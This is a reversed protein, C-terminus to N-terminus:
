QFQQRQQEQRYAAGDERCTVAVIIFIYICALQRRLGLAKHTFVEGALGYNGYLLVVAFVLYTQGVAGLDVEGAGALPLIHISRCALRYGTSEIGRRDVGIDGGVHVAHADVLDGLLAATVVDLEQVAQLQDEGGVAGEEGGVVVSEKFDVIMCVWM